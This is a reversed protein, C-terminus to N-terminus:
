QYDNCCTIVPRSVDLSSVTQANLKKLPINIAEPLHAENYEEEPLVEILQAGDAMLQQVEQRDIDTPM